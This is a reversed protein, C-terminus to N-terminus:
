GEKFKDLKVSISPWDRMEKPVTKREIIFMAGDCDYLGLRKPHPDWVIQGEVGVCFHSVGDAPNQGSLGHPKSYDILSGIDRADFEPEMYPVTLPLSRPTWHLAVIILGKGKLWDHLAMWREPSRSYPHRPDGTWLDPVEELGVNLISAITAETCQGSPYATRDQTVSRFLLIM